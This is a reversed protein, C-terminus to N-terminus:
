GNPSFCRIAISANTTGPVRGPATWSHEQVVISGNFVVPTSEGTTNIGNFYTTVIDDGALCSLNTTWWQKTAATSLYNFTVSSSVGVNPSTYTGLSTGNGKTSPDFYNTNVTYYRGVSTGTVSGSAALDGLVIADDQIWVPAPNGWFTGSNSIVKNGNNMDFNGNLEIGGSTSNVSLGGTTANVTLGGSTANITQGGSLTNITFGANGSITDCSGNAPSTDTHNLCSNLTFGGPSIANLTLGSGASSNLIGGTGYIAGNNYLAGFQTDAATGNWGAAVYGTTQLNDSVTVDSSPDSINGNAAVALGVTGAATGVTMGSDDVIALPSSDVGTNRSGIGGFADILSLFLFEPNGPGSMIGFVNGDISIDRGDAATRDLYISDQILVNGSPNSIAGTGAVQLGITGADDGFRVGDSDEINVYKDTPDTSGSYIRGVLDILGTAIFADGAVSASAGGGTTVSNFTADVNGGPPTGTPDAMVLSPLTISLVVTGFVLSSFINQKKMLKQNNVYGLIIGNNAMIQCDATILRFYTLIV